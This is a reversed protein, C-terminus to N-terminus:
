RNVERTVNARSINQNVVGLRLVAWDVYDQRAKEVRQIAAKEPGSATVADPAPIGKEGLEKAQEHLRLERALKTTDIPRLDPHAKKPSANASTSLWVRFNALFSM